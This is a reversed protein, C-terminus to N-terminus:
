RAMWVVPARSARDGARRVASGLGFRRARTWHARFRHALRGLGGRPWLPRGYRAELLSRERESAPDTAGGVTKAGSHKRFAGLAADIYLVAPNLRGIRALLDTDMHLRLATDFPGAGDLVSRHVFVGQNYPWFGALWRTAPVPDVGISGRFVGDEDVVIVDGVVV